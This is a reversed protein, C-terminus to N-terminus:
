MWDTIETDLDSSRYIYIHISDLHLPNEKANCNTSDTTRQNEDLDNPSNVEFEHKDM